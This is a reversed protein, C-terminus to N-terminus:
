INPAAEVGWADEPLRQRAWMEAAARSYFHVARKPDKTWVQPRWGHERPGYSQAAEAVLLGHGLSIVFGQM